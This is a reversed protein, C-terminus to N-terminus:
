EYFVKEVVARALRATRMWDELLDQQFGEPYGLLAATTVLLRDTAVVDLKKGSTRGSGLVNAARIKSALLWAEDLIQADPPAVIGAACAAQLGQRTSTTRLTPHDKAQRKYM